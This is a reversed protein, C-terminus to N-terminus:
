LESGDSEPENTEATETVDPTPQPAAQESQKGAPRKPAVRIASTEYREKTKRDTYEARVVVLTVWGRWQQVVDTGAITEMRKCNGPNLGFKKSPGKKGRFRLYPMKGGGDSGIVDAVGSDIIEVDIKTGPPGIDEAFLMDKNMRKHVERWRTAVTQTTDTQSM